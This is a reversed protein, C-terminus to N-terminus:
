GNVRFVLDSATDSTLHRLKPQSSHSPKDWRSYENALSRHYRSAKTTSEFAGPLPPQARTEARSRAVHSVSLNGTGRAWLNLTWHSLSAALHASVANHHTSYVCAPLLPIFICAFSHNKQGLSASSLKPFSSWKQAPSQLFFLYSQLGANFTEDHNVQGLPLFMLWLM